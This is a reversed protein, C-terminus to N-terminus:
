ETVVLSWWEKDGWAAQFASYAAAPVFIKLSPSYADPDLGCGKGPPTTGQFHVEELVQNDRGFVYDEIGTLEPGFTVTRLPTNSFAFAGVYRIKPFTLSENLVSDNFSSESIWIVKPFGDPIDLTLGAFGRWGITELAPFSGKLTGQLGKFTGEEVSTLSSFDVESIITAEEFAGGGISTVKPFGGPADLTVGRFSHEGITELEPFSAKLTGQVRDFANNEVSTVSPFDAESAFSANLFAYSDISTLKPFGKPADLTVNRFSYSGITELVPFSAKLTGKVGCFASAELSTLSPFAIEVNPALTVASFADGGISTVATFLGSHIELDSCGRFAGSGIYSLSTNEPISIEYLKGCGSFAEAALTDVKAPITIRRLESCGSFAGEGIYELNEPLFDISKFKMNSFANAAIRKISAPLSISTIGTGSSIGFEECQSGPEFVIETIREDGLRGIVSLVTNAITVTASGYDGNIVFSPYNYAYDIEYNLVTGEPLQNLDVGFYSSFGPGRWSDVTGGPQEISCHRIGFIAKESRVEVSKLSPCVFARSWVRQISKPLVIDTLGSCGDFANLGIEEVGDLNIEKLNTWGAFMGAPIVKFWEPFALSEKDMNAFVYTAYEIDPDLKFFASNAGDFCHDGYRTVPSATNITKISKCGAFMYPAYETITAPLTVEELRSCGEFLNNAEITTVRNPFVIKRFQSGYFAYQEIKRLSEPLIVEDLSTCGWFLGFDYDWSDLGNSYTGIGPKLTRVNCSAPFVINELASCDKFVGAQLEELNDPLTVAKLSICNEFAGNHNTRDPYVLNVNVRGELILIDSNTGFDVTELNPCFYFADASVKEIHLPMIVKTLSPICRFVGGTENTTTTMESLDLEEVCWDCEFYADHGTGVFTGPDYPHYAGGKLLELDQENLKGTIKLNIIKHLDEESIVESLTGPTAVHVTVQQANAKQTITIQWKNDGSTLELYATRPSIDPNMLAKLTVTSTHLAKTELISLWEGEQIISATLDANTQVAVDFQGGEWPITYADEGEVIDNQLQTITVTESLDSEKDKFVITATREEGTDNALGTWVYNDTVIAKTGAGEALTIWPVGPGTVEYDVNTTAQVSVTGGYPGVTFEKDSLVLTRGGKQYVTITESLENMTVTIHGTRTQVEPNSTAKFVYTNSVMAKTEFLTLWSADSRVQVDANHGIIIEVNGGEKELEFSSASVTLADKQKQTVTATEAHSTAKDKITIVAYRADTEESPQATFVIRADQLYAKTEQWSLWSCDGVSVEYDVNHQMELEFTGGKDSIVFDNKGLIIWSDKKDIVGNGNVDLYDEFPPIVFDTKGLDTYRKTLNNRVKDADVKKCGDLIQTRIRDTELKGATAVEGAIKSILESLEGVTRGAQLSASIALLIADADTGGTIDMKDFGTDGVTNPINFVAFIEQEAQKRAEAVSKGGKVLAMMRDSELTTLLNVNTKGEESLDSLSRLTLTSSSVKGEIENFYYGTAIIEVYRSEIQSGIAFLGADDTTKTSYNKGTPDLKDDLAQITISTGQTFPGKQVSGNVSWTKGSPTPTDTGNGNGPEPLPEEGCSFVFM